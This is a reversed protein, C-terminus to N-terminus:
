VVLIRIAKADYSTLYFNFCKTLNCIFKCNIIVFYNPNEAPFVRRLVRLKATTTPGKDRLELLIHHKLKITDYLALKFKLM